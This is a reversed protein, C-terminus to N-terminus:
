GTLNNHKEGSPVRNAVAPWFSISMLTHNWSLGHLIIYRAKELCFKKNFNFGIRGLVTEKWFCPVDLQMKEWM